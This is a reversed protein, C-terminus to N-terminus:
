KSHNMFGFHCLRRLTTTKEFGRYCPECLPPRTYELNFGSAVDSATGEFLNLRLDQHVLFALSLCSSGIFIFLEGLVDLALLAEHLM